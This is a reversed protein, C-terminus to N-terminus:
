PAKKLGLSALIDAASRPKDAVVVAPKPEHEAEIPPADNVSIVTGSGYFGTQPLESGDYVAAGRRGHGQDMQVTDSQPVFQGQMVGQAGGNHQPISHPDIGTAMAKDLDSAKIIGM